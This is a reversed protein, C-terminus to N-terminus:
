GLREKFFDMRTFSKLLSSIKRAADAPPKDARRYAGVIKNVKKKWKLKIKLYVSEDDLDCISKELMEDDSCPVLIKIQDILEMISFDSYEATFYFDVAKKYNIECQKSRHQM